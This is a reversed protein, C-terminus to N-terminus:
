VEKWDGLSNFYTGDERQGRTTMASVSVGVLDDTNYDQGPTLDKGGNAAKFIPTLLWKAKSSIQLFVTVGAMEGTKGEFQFLYNPSGDTKAQKVKITKVEYTYRGPNQVLFGSKIDADSFSVVPM